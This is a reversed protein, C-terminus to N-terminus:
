TLVMFYFPYIDVFVLFGLLTILFLNVLGSTLVHSVTLLYVEEMFKDALQHDGEMFAGIAQWM